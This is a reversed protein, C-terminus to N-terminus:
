RIITFNSRDRSRRAPARGPTCIFNQKLAVVKVRTPGYATLCGGSCVRRKAGREEATGQAGATARVDGSLERRARAPGGRSKKCKRKSDAIGAHRLMRRPSPSPWAAMNRLIPGVKLSRALAAVCM